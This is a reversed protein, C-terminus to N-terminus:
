SILEPLRVSTTRSMGSYIAASIPSRLPAFISQLAAGTRDHGALYRGGNRADENLDTKRMIEVKENFGAGDALKGAPIIMVNKTKVGKYNKAFWACANNM